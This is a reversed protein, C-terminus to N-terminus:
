FYFNFGFSWGYDLDLENNPMIITTTAAVNELLFYNASLGYLWATKQESGLFNGQLYLKKEVNTNAWFASVNTKESIEGGVSISDYIIKTKNLMVAGSKKHIVSRKLEKSFLRNTEITFTINKYILTEGFRVNTFEPSTIQEKKNVYEYNPDDIKTYLLSTGLHTYGNIKAETLFPLIWIIISIAIFRIM